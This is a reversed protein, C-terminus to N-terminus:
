YSASRGTPNTSSSRDTFFSTRHAGYRYRDRQDKGQRQYRDPTTSATPTLATAVYTRAHDGVDPAEAVLAEVVRGVRTQLPGLLFEPDLGLGQLRTSRGVVHIVLGLEGLGAEVRYIGDPEELRVCEVLHGRLIGIGVKGDDVPLDLAVVHGADAEPLLLAAVQRTHNGPEHGLLVGLVGVRIVLCYAEQTPLLRGQDPLELGAVLGADLRDARVALDQHLVRPRCGVGEVVRRPALLDAELLYALARVDDVMRGARGPGPEELGGLLLLDEGDAHVGVLRLYDFVSGDQGGHDLPHVVGHKLGYLLSPVAVEGAALDDLEAQVVIADAERGEAPEVIQYGLLDLILHILGLLPDYVALDLDRRLWLLPGPIVSLSVPPPVVSACAAGTTRSIRPIVLVKPGTLALSSTEIVSCRPSIRPRKPSFPAPFDVSM